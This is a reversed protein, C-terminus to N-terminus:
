DNYVNEIVEYFVFYFIMVLLVGTCLEYFNYGFGIMPFILLTGCFISWVLQAKM